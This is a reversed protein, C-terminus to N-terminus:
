CLTRQFMSSLGRLRTPGRQRQTKPTPSSDSGLGNTLMRQFKSWRSELNGGIIEIRLTFCSSRGHKSGMFRFLFIENIKFSKNCLKFWRIGEFGPNCYERVFDRMWQFWFQMFRQFFIFFLVLITLYLMSFWNFPTWERDLIEM